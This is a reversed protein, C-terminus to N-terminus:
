GSTTEEGQRIVRVGRSRIGVVFRTRDEEVIWDRVNKEEHIKPRGLAGLVHRDPLAERETVLPTDGLEEDFRHLARDGEVGLHGIEHPGLRGLVHAEGVEWGHLCELDAGFGLLGLNCGEGEAELVAEDLEGEPALSFGSHGLKKRLNLPEIGFYDIPSKFVIVAEGGFSRDEGRLAPNRNGLYGGVM